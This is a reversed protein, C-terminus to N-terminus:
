AILCIRGSEGVLVAPLDSRALAQDVQETMALVGAKAPVAISEKLVDVAVQLGEAPCRVFDQSEKKPNGLRPEHDMHLKTAQVVIIHRGDIPVDAQRGHLTVGSHGVNSIRRSKSLGERQVTASGKSVDKMCGVVFVPFADSVLSKGQTVGPLFALGAAQGNVHDISPARLRRLM